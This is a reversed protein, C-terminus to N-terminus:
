DRRLRGIDKMYFVYTDCPQATAFGTSNTGASMNTPINTVYSIFVAMNTRPMFQVWGYSALSDKVCPVLDIETNLSLNTMNKATPSGNSLDKGKTFM